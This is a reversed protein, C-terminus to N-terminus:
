MGFNERWVWEARWHPSQFDKFIQQESKLKGEGGTADRDNGEGGKDDRENGEGGMCCIESEKAMKMQDSIEIIM